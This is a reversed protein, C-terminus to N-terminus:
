SIRRLLQVADPGGVSADWLRQWLREYTAVVDPARLEQGGHVLETTVYVPADDRPTFLIFNHWTPTGVRADPLVRLEITALTAVTLLRDLQSPMVGAAPSWRLSNETLLFEFRPGDERYLLQQRELRDATAAAYDDPSADYVQPLLQRAYEATQLLGPVLGSQYNRVLVAGAERHRAVGQLADGAAVEPWPMTEHHAAKALTLVRERVEPAAAFADLWDTVEPISLLQRGSEVRSAVVQTFQTRRALDRQSEGAMTRLAKLEVGLTRRIQTPEPM